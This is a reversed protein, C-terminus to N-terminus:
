VVWFFLHSSWYRFWFSGYGICRDLFTRRFWCSCAFHLVNMLGFILAPVNRRGGFLKDSIVGSFMTGIIGCVPCISIIFSADLTSYGKQKLYFVGWSNIAYRSIYMFASSLALIWIAPMMLVQRQAKNFDATETESM